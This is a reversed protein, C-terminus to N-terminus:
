SNIQYFLHIRCVNFSFGSISNQKELLSCVIAAVTAGASFGMIGVFPGHTELFRLIYEVSTELGRIRDEELDGHGWTWTDTTEEGHHDPDAPHLGSPYFFEVVDFPGRDSDEWLSSLLANGVSPQM